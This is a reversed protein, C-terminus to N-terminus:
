RLNNSRISWFNGDFSLPSKSTNTEYSYKNIKRIKNHNKAISFKFNHLKMINPSFFFFLFLNLIFFNYFCLNRVQRPDGLGLAKIQLCISELRLRQIEAIPYPSFEAFDKESYLRFCIGPGTKKKKECFTVVLFLIVLGSRLDRVPEVVDARGRNLLHKLYGINKCNKWKPNVTTPLSKLRHFPM